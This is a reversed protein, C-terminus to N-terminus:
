GSKTAGIVLIVPVIENRHALDPKRRSFLDDVLPEDLTEILLGAKRLAEAYWSLPRHYYRHPQPQNEKSVGLASHVDRYRWVRRSVRTELEGIEVLWSSGDIIQFSPHFLSAVLRGGPRLVRGVESLAENAVSIDMLSMNMTVRDFCNDPFPVAAADSVLYRVGLPDRQEYGLGYRVLTPSIDAAIVQAGARALPRSSSGNGCGLDLVRLGAVPGLGRYLAPLVFHRHFFDGAEGVEADWWDAIPEFSGTTETEPDIEPM